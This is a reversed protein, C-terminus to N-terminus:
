NRASKIISNLGSIKVLVGDIKLYNMYILSNYTCVEDTYTLKAHRKCWTSV